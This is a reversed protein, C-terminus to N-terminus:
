QKLERLAVDDIWVTGPTEIVFRLDIHDSDGTNFVYRYERWGAIENEVYTRTAWQPDTTLFLPKPEARSVLAWFTAAYFTRARLRTIRQSLSGWSTDAKASGHDFRFAAVGSHRDTTDLVGQSDAGGSIIYPLRKLGEAVKDNRIRDELYGTGWFDTGNEFGGNRVRNQLARAEEQKILVWAATGGLAGTILTVALVIDLPHTRGLGSWVLHRTPEATLLLGYGIVASAVAAYVGWSFDILSSVQNIFMALLISALGALLRRV